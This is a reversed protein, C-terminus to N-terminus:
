SWYNYIRCYMFCCNSIGASGVSRRATNLDATESWCTGDYTETIDSISGAYRGFALAATTTGVIGNLSRGATLINNGETWSTGNWTESVSVYSGPPLQGGAMICATSTGTAGTAKRASLTNNGETWTSGDYTESNQTVASPSSSGSAMLAATVTGAGGTDAHHTNMATASAWAGAGSTGVKFAGSSSNYWLQGVAEAATPDESLKQVTYGQIGKYTAM